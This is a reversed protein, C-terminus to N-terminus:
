KPFSLVQVDNIDKPLPITTFYSSLNPCNGYETILNTISQVGICKTCNYIPTAYVSHGSQQAHNDIFRISFMNTDFDCDDYSYCDKILRITCQNLNWSPQMLKGVHLDGDNYIAGGFETAENGSFEVACGEYFYLPVNNSLSIAGGNVGTNNKFTIIGHLQLLGNMGQIAGLPSNSSFQSETVTNGFIEVNMGNFYIAGGRLENYDNCSCHNDKVMVGQLRLYGFPAPDSTLINSAVFFSQIISNMAYVAAGGVATNNTFTSSNILTSRISVIFIAGGYTARNKQFTCSIINEDGASETLKLVEVWFFVAGGNYTASNNQFTCNTISVNGKSDYFRVGGGEYIASNNQFTCNTISVDGTSYYYYFWVGSFSMGGGYLASNSQWTCNTISVDGTPSYLLAGGGAGYTATNNLFTCNKISVRDNSFHLSVGGGGDDNYASNNQFTCNTISVKGNSLYFRVGGGNYTASNNLFTCNTISVSDTSYYLSM